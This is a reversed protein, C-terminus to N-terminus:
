NSSFSDLKSYNCESTNRNKRYLSKKSLISKCKQINKKIADEVISGEKSGMPAGYFTGKYGKSMKMKTSHVYEERVLFLEYQKTIEGTSVEKCDYM